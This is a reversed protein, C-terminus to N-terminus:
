PQIAIQQSAGTSFLAKLQTKGSGNDVAYIIACDTPPASPATMEKFFAANSGLTLAVGLLSSPSSGGLAIRKFIGEYAKSLEEKIIQRVQEETM